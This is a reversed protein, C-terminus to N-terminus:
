NIWGGLFRPMIIACAHRWSGVFYPSEVLHLKIVNRTGSGWAQSSSIWKDVMLQRWLCKLSSHLGVMQLNHTIVDAWSRRMCCRWRWSPKLGAAAVIPKVSWFVDGCAVLFRRLFVQRYGRWGWQTWISNRMLVSKLPFHKSETANLKFLQRWLNIWTKSLYIHYVADRPHATQQHWCQPDLSGHHGHHGHHMKNICSQICLSVTVLSGSTWQQVMWGHGDGSPAAHHHMVVHQLSRYVAEPLQFCGLEQM